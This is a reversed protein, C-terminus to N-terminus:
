SNMIPNIKLQWKPHFQKACSQFSLQPDPPYYMTGRMWLNHHACIDFKTLNLYKLFINTWNQWIWIRSLNSRYKTKSMVLWTSWASAKGFWEWREMFSAIGKNDANKEINEHIWAPCTRAESGLAKLSAKDDAATSSYWKSVWTLLTISIIIWENYM